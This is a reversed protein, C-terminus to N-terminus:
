FSVQPVEGPETQFELGDALIKIGVISIPLSGFDSENVQRLFEGIISSWRLM